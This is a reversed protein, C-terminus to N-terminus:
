GSFSFLILLPFRWSRSDSMRLKCDQNGVTRRTPQSSWPIIHSAPPLLCFHPPAALLFHQELSSANVPTSATVRFILQTSQFCRSAPHEQSRCHRYGCAGCGGREHQGESRSHGRWDKAWNRCSRPGFVLLAIFFIVLLHM